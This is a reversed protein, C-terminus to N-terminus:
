HEELGSTQAEDYQLTKCNADVFYYFWFFLTGRKLMQNQTLPMTRGSRKKLRTVTYM